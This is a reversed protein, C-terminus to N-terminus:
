QKLKIRLAHAARQPQSSTRAASSAPTGAHVGGSGCRLVDEGIADEVTTEPSPM